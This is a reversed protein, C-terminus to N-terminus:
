RNTGVQGYNGDVDAAMARVLRKRRDNRRKKESTAVTSFCVADAENATGVCPRNISDVGVGDRISNKIM